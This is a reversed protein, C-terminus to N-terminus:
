SILMKRNRFCNQILCPATCMPIPGSDILLFEITIVAVVDRSQVSLGVILFSIATVVIITSAATVTIEADTPLLVTLEGLHKTQRLQFSLKLTPNRVMNQDHRGILVSQISDHLRISVIRAIKKPSNLKPRKIEGGDAHTQRLLFPLDQGLHLDSLSSKRQNQGKRLHEPIHREIRWIANHFHDAVPPLRKCGKMHSRQITHLIAKSSQTGGFLLVAWICIGVRIRLLPFGDVLSQTQHLLQGCCLRFLNCLFFSSSTTASFNRCPRPM